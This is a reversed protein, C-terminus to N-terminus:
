IEKEPEPQPTPRPGNRRAPLPPPTPHGIRAFLERLAMDVLASRSVAVGNAVAADMASYLDRSGTLHWAVTRDPRPARKAEEVLEAVTPPRLGAELDGLTRAFHKAPPETKVRECV